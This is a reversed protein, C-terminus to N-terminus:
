FSNQSAGYIDWVALKSIRNNFDEMNKIKIKM